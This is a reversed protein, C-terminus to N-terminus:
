RSGSPVVPTQVHSRSEIHIESENSLVGAAPRVSDPVCKYRNYLNHRGGSQRDRNWNQNSYFNNNNQPIGPFNFNTHNVINFFEARFEAIGKKGLWPVATDKNISLDWDALGPGRLAGRPADGLTGFAPLTFMHTNYWERPKGVIVTNKNYVQAGPSIGPIPPDISCM